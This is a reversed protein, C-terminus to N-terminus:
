ALAQFRQDVVVVRGDREDLERRIPLVDQSGGEVVGEFQPVVALALTELRVGPVLVFLIADKSIKGDRPSLPDNRSGFVILYVRNTKSSIHINIKDELITPRSSPIAVKQQTSM